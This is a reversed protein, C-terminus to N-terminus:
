TDLGTIMTLTIYIVTQHIPNRISPDYRNWRIEELGNRQLWVLLRNVLNQLRHDLTKSMWGLLSDLELRITSFDSPYYMLKTLFSILFLCVKPIPEAQQFYKMKSNWAYMFWTKIGLQFRGGSGEYTVNKASAMSYLNVFINESYHLKM